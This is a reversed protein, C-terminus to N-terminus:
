LAGKLKLWLNEWWPVVQDHLLVPPFPTSFRIDAELRARRNASVYGDVIFSNSTHQLNALDVAYNGQDNTIAAVAYQAAPTNAYVLVLADAIKEGNFVVSGYGPRPMDPMETRVRTTTVSPNGWLIPRLGTWLMIRYATEPELNTLEQLHVTTLSHNCGVKPLSALPKPWLMVCGFTPRPLVWAVSLSRAHVNVPRVDKPTPSLYFGAILVLALVVILAKQKRNFQNSYARLLQAMNARQMEGIVQDFGSRFTSINKNVLQM